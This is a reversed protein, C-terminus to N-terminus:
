IDTCTNKIHFVDNESLLLETNWNLLFIRLELQGQGRCHKCGEQKTTMQPKLSCVRYGMMCFMLPDTSDKQDPPVCLMIEWTLMSNCILITIKRVPKANIKYYERRLQNTLIIMDSLVLFRKLMSQIGDEVRNKVIGRVRNYSFLQYSM